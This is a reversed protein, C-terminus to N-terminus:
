NNEKYVEPLPMWARVAETEEGLLTFDEFNWEINDQNSKERNMYGIYYNDYLYVLVYKDEEPLKESPDIWGAKVRTHIDDSEILINQQKQYLDLYMENSKLNYTVEFYMDDAHPTMLLCKKYGLVHAMWVVHIDAISVDSNGAFYKDLVANKAAVEFEYTTM